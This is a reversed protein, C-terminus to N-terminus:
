CVALVPVLYIVGRSAHSTDDPKFSRQFHDLVIDFTGYVLMIAVPDLRPYVQTGCATCQRKAGPLDPLTAAGCRGCFLSARHWNLLAQAKSCVAVARSSLSLREGAATTRSVVSRTAVFRRGDGAGFDRDVAALVAAEDVSSLDVALLEREGGGSVEAINAAGAHREPDALGGGIPPLAIVARPILGAATGKATGLGAGAQCGAAEVAVGLRALLGLPQLSPELVTVPPTVPPTTESSASPHSTPVMLVEGNRWIVLAPERGAAATGFLRQGARSGVSIGRM